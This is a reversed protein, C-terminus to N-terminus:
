VHARGIEVQNVKPNFFDIDFLLIENSFIKDPAIQYVPIELVDPLVNANFAVAACVGGTGALILVTGASVTAMTVGLPALLGAFVGCTVVVLVATVAAVVLGVLITAIISGAKAILDVSITTDTQNYIVTHVINMLADGTFVLLEGVPNLLKGGKAGDKAQVQGTFAFSTIIIILAFIILKKFLKINKIEFFKM